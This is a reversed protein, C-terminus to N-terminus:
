DRGLVQMSRVLEARDHELAQDAMPYLIQEEKMNHQRMMLLLAEAQNLFTGAAGNELAGEMAMLADRIQDHESRMVGTPGDQMGTRQEFAPFLLAEERQFHVLTAQKFTHFIQRGQVLDGEAVANEADSFHKDCQDHDRTLFDSLASLAEM